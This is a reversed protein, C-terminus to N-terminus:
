LNKLCEVFYDIDEQTTFKSFSVRIALSDNQPDLTELVHSGKIAGSSCASGGSVAVGNLDLTFLTMENFVEKSLALNIVSPLYGDVQESGANFGVGKIPKLQEILYQKLALMQAENEERSESLIELAKAMGVVLPVAETGARLGKEQAGGLQDSSLVFDQNFALFGVGKPGHYKHASSVIFDIGLEQQNVDLHALSQVTDSHFYAGHIKCLQAIEKVPNIKGIENNAHMISVMSNPCNALMNELHTLDLVGFSDHKTYHVNVGAHEAPYLVAHHELPSVIINKVGLNRVAFKFVLNNAETAGSTFILRQAKTGVLNAIQKRSAEVAGRAERGAFHTSSPNGYVNLFYPQMCEWVQPDLSTTAANDLYVKRM